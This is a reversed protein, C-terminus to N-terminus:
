ASVQKAKCVSWHEWHEDCYATAGAGYWAADNRCLSCRVALGRENVEQTKWRSSHKAQEPLSLPLPPPNWYCVCMWVGDDHKHAEGLHGCRSCPRAFFSSPIQEQEPEVVRALPITAPETAPLPEARRPETIPTDMTRTETQQQQFLAASILANLVWQRVSLGHTHMENADHLLPKYRKCRDSDLKSLWYDSAKEGEADNDFAVFVFPQRRLRGENVPNRAVDASGTAVVNVVDGAEQLLTAADLESEVLFTPRKQKLLCDGLYFANHESGPVVRYKPESDPLPHHLNRRNIKRYLMGDDKHWPIVLCPIKSYENEKIKMTDCSYGFRLCKATEVSIGRSALYAHVLQIESPTCVQSKRVYEEYKAYWQEDTFANRGPASARVASTGTLPVIGDESKALVFAKADPYNMGECRMVLDIITGWGKKRRTGDKWTVIESPDWCKRCMWAGYGAWHGTLKGEAQVSFADSRSSCQPNICRAMWEVGNIAPRFAAGKEIAYDYCNLKYGPM